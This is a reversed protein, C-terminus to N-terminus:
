GRHPWVNQLWLPTRERYAAYEEGFRESLIREDQLARQHLYWGHYLCLLVALPSRTALALGATFIAHGMYMPNRTVAYPGTTILVGPAQMSGRRPRGFGWAFAGYGSGEGRKMLYAGCLRYQLYGWLMLPLGVLHVRLKRRVLLEFLITAAPFVMYTRTSTGRWSRLLDGGRAMLAPESSAMTM